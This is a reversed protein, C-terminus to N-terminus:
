QLHRGIGNKPLRSRLFMNFPQSMEAASRLFAFPNNIYVNASGGDVLAVRISKTLTDYISELKSYKQVMNDCARRGIVAEPVNAEVIDVVKRVPVSHRM